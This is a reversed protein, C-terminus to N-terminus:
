IGKSSPYNLGLRVPIQKEKSKKGLLTIKQKIKYCKADFWPPNNETGTKRNKSKKVHANDATEVLIETLKEVFLNPHGLDQSILRELKITTEKSGLANTYNEISEESWFSKPPASEPPSLSCEISINQKIELDFLLPSHDSLLPIYDGIKLISIQDFISHSSIVHDVVSNGNWKLCTFNGFPDGTKRGNIISLELSKCIGLLENGRENTAKDQSNRKPLPNNNHINFDEDSKDPIITDSHIGTRANLDGTIIVHGKKGFFIIDDELNTIAKNDPVNSPSFYCTALYIDNQSGVKGGEIKIWIIDDNGRKVISILNSVHQKVFVAIGGAATGSKVNKQRNKYSRLIFGPISLNGLIETISVVDADKVISLFNPDKM